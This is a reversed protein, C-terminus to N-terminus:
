RTVGEMLARFRPVLHRALQDTIAKDSLDIEVEGDELRLRLGARPGGGGITVGEALMAGAVDVAVATLAESEAGRSRRLEELDTAEDPLLLVATEINEPRAKGAVALIMQELVAKDTAHERIRRGLYDVFHHALDERLRLVMDRAALNLAERGAKVSAEADVKAATRLREAEREAAGVIRDAEQRAEALIRDAEAQGAAVGDQKLRNILQSVGSATTAPDAM